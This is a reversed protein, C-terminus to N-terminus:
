KKIVLTNRQGHEGTALHHRVRLHRRGPLHPLQHAHRIPAFKEQDLHRVPHKNVKAIHYPTEPRLSHPDDQGVGFPLRLKEM